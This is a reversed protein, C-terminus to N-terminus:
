PDIKGHNRLNVGQIAASLSTILRGSIVAFYPKGTEADTLQLDILPLGSEMGQETIVASDIKLQRINKEYRPAVDGSNLKIKLATGENPM